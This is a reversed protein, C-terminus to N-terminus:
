GALKVQGGVAETWARLEAAFQQPTRQPVPETAPQPEEEKEELNPFWQEPKMSDSGKARYPAQGVMALLGARYDERAGGWPSLRFFQWLEEYQESTIEELM